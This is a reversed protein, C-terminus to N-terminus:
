NAPPIHRPILGMQRRGETDRRLLERVIAAEDRGMGTAEDYNSGHYVSGDTGSGSFGNAGYTVGALGGTRYSEAERNGGARGRIDSVNDYSQEEHSQNNGHQKMEKSIHEATMLMRTGVTISALVIAGMDIANQSAKGEIAISRSIISFIPMLISSIEEKSPACPKYEDSFMRQSYLAILAALTHPLISSILKESKETHEKGLKTRPAEEEGDKNFKSLLRDKWSLQPISVKEPEISLTMEEIEPSDDIGQDRQERAIRAKKRREENFAKQEEETRGRYTRM